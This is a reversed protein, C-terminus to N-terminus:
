DEEVVASNALFDEGEKESVQNIKRWAAIAMSRSKSNWADFLEYPKGQNVPEGNVETFSLRIAEETASAAGGKSQAAMAARAEDRGDTERIVFSKIQVATGDKEKYSLGKYTEVDCRIVM